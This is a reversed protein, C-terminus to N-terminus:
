IFERSTDDPIGRRQKLSQNAKGTNIVCPRHKRPAIVHRELDIPHTSSPTPRVPGQCVHSSDCSTKAAGIRVRSDYKFLDGQSIATPLPHHFRVDRSQINKLFRSQLHQLDHLHVDPLLVHTKMLIGTPTAKYEAAHLRKRGPYTRRRELM